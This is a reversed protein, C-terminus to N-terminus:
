WSLAVRGTWTGNLKQIRAVTTTGANYTFKYVVWDSTGTDANARMNLGIYNPQDDDPDFLIQNDIPARSLFRQM